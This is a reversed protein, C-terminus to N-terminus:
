LGEMYNDNTQEVWQKASPILCMRDKNVISDIYTIVGQSDLLFTFFIFTMKTIIHLSDWKVICIGKNLCPAM